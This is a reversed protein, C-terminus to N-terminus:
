PHDNLNDDPRVRTDRADLRPRKATMSRVKAVVGEVVFKTQTAMLAIKHAPVRIGREITEALEATTTLAASVMGDVRAVQRQTRQNVDSVTKEIQQASARFELISARVVGSTEALNESIVKVKPATDHILQQTSKAVTTATDLLPMAKKKFEDVTATMDKITATAKIAMVTMAVAQVAMSVAVLGVFILLLKANGSSFTYTEQFWMALIAM